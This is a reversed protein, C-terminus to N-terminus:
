SLASLMMKQPTWKMASVATMRLWSCWCTIRGLRVAPHEIASMACMSSTSSQQSSRLSASGRLVVTGMVYMFEVAAM